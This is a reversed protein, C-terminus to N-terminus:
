AKKSLTSDKQAQSKNTSSTVQKSNPDYILALRQELSLNLDLHADKLSLNLKKKHTRNRIRRKKHPPQTLKDSLTDNKTPDM